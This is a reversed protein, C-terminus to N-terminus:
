RLPHVDSAFFLYEDDFLDARPDVFAAAPFGLTEDYTARSTAVPLDIMRLLRDFQGEVTTYPGIRGLVDGVPEISTIVGNVVTVRTLNVYEAPCPCPHRIHYSYSALNAARWKARARLLEERERAYPVHVETITDTGCGAGLVALVLVVRFASWPTRGFPPVKM